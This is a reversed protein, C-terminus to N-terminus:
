VNPGRLRLICTQNLPDFTYIIVTGEYVIGEEYLFGGAWIYLILL